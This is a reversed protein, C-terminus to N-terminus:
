WSGRRRRGLEAHGCVVAEVGADMTDGEGTHVRLAVHDAGADTTDGEGTISLPSALASTTPFSLDSTCRCMLMLSERWLVGHRQARDASLRANEVALMPDRWPQQQQESSSSAHLADTPPFLPSPLLVCDTASAMPSPRDSSERYSLRRCSAARQPSTANSCPHLSLLM